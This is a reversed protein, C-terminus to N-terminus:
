LVTASNITAQGTGNTISWVVSKNTANDPLVAASLQLTGNDTTIASSGGQGTVSINTVPIGAPGFIRAGVQWTGNQDATAPSTTGWVADTALGTLWESGLDTGYDLRTTPVFGIKDAFNPDIVVSHADYGM